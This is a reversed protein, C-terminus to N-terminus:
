KEEAPKPPPAKRDYGQQYAEVNQGPVAIKILKRSDDLWVDAHIPQATASPAFELTFHNLDSKGAAFEVPEKGKFVVTAPVETQGLVYANFMQPDANDLKVRMALTSWAFLPFNANVVLADPHVSDEKPNTGQGTTIQNKAKGDSFEVVDQMKMQGMTAKAEAALPQYNDDTTVSFKEIDIKLTGLNAQGSGTLQIKGGARSISYNETAIQQAGMYITLKGDDAWAASGAALLCLVSSIKTKAKM